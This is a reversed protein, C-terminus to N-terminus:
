RKPNQAAIVEISPTVVVVRNNGNVLDAENGFPVFRITRRCATSTVAKRIEGCNDEIDGKAAAPAVDAALIMLGTNDTHFCRYENKDAHFCQDQRMEVGKGTYKNPAVQMDLADVVKFDTSKSTGVVDKTKTSKEQDDTIIRRALKDYCALRDKELNAYYMGDNRTSPDSSLGHRLTVDLRLSFSLLANLGGSHYYIM